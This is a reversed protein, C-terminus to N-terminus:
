KILTLLGAYSLDVVLKGTEGAAGKVFSKLIDRLSVTETKFLSKAKDFIVDWNNTPWLEKLLFELDDIDISVIETNFSTNSFRGDQKLISDLYKRLQVDEVIFQVSRGDKKLISKSLLREFASKYISEDQPNGYKLIAEYRLRKVKSEPIRLIISIEYNSKNQLKNQLLSYFIYVEFDNKNMSGFGRSIYYDLFSEDLQFIQDEFM